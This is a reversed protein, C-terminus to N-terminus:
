RKHLPTMDKKNRICLRVLEPLFNKVLTTLKSVQGWATFPAFPNM